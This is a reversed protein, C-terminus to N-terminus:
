HTLQETTIDGRELAARIRNGSNMRQQGPNLSAYRDSLFGAGLGLIREAAAMVLAPDRGELFKAVPDGNHLSPRNSYAVTPEYRTRYRLLTQAMTRTGQAELWAIIVAKTVQRKPASVMKAHAETDAQEVLALLDNRSLKTLDQKNM